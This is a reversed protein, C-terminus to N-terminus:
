RGGSVLMELTMVIDKMSDAQAKLQQSASASEEASAATQQTAQEMQVLARAIQENGIHSVVNDPAYVPLGANNRREGSGAKGPVGPVPSDCSFRGEM